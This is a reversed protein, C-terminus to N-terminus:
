VTKDKVMQKSVKKIFQRNSYLGFGVKRIAGIPIELEEQIVLDCARNHLQTFLKFTYDKAQKPSFGGTPPLRHQSVGKSNGGRPSMTMHHILEGKWHSPLNVFSWVVIMRYTRFDFSKQRLKTSGSILKPGRLSTFYIGYILSQKHPNYAGLSATKDKPRPNSVYEDEFLAPCLRFVFPVLLNQKIGKTESYTSTSKGDELMLTQKLTNIEFDSLNSPHISYRQEQIKATQNTEKDLYQSSKFVITLDDNPSEKVSILERFVNDVNIQLRFKAKKAM